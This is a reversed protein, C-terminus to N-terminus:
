ADVQVSARGFWAFLFTHMGADGFCSKPFSVSTSRRGQHGKRHRRLKDHRGPGVGRFLPRRNPRNLFLAPLGLFPTQQPRTTPSNNLKHHFAFFTRVVLAVPPDRTHCQQQWSLKTTNKKKSNRFSFTQDQPIIICRPRGVHSGCSFGANMRGTALACACRLDRRVLLSSTCLPLRGHYHVSFSSM